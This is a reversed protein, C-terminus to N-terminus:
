KRRAQSSAGGKCVFFNDRAMCGWESIPAGTGTSPDSFFSRVGGQVPKYHDPSVLPHNHLKMNHTVSCSSTGTPEGGNQFYYSRRSNNEEKPRFGSYGQCVTNYNQRLLGASFPDHATPSPQYSQHLASLDRMGCRQERSMETGRHRVQHCKLLGRAHPSSYSSYFALPTKAPKLATRPPSQSLWSPDGHATKPSVLRSGATLPQLSTPPHVLQRVLEARSGFKEAAGIAERVDSSTRHM